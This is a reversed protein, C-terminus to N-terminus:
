DRVSVKRACGVHLFSTRLSALRTSIFGSIGSGSHKGAGFSISHTRCFQRPRTSSMTGVINTMANSRRFFM